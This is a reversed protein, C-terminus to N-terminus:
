TNVYNISIAMRLTLDYGSRDRFWGGQQQKTGAKDAYGAGTSLLKKSLERNGIILVSLADCAAGKRNQNM